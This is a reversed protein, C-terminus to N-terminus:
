GQKAKRAAEREARIRRAPAMAACVIVDLEADTARKGDLLLWLLLEAVTDSLRGTAEITGAAGGILFLKSEQHEKPRAPLWIKAKYTYEDPFRKSFHLERKKEPVPAPGPTPPLNKKLSVEGSGEGFVGAV